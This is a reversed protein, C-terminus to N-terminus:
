TAESNYIVYYYDLWQSIQTAFMPAAHMQISM